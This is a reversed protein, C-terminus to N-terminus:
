LFVIEAAVIEGKVNRRVYCEYSGDGYGSRSVVGFNDIIGASQNMDDENCTLNCVKGYFSNKDGYEGPDDKPYQDLDFIGCQGSDVGVDIKTLEPNNASLAYNEHVAVLNSVRIGWSGKDSEEIKANWKGNLVNDLTGACWTDLDYCPDSIRLKGSKVEFSGILKM